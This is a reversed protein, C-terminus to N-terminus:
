CQNHHDKLLFHRDKEEDLTAHNKRNLSFQCIIPQSLCPEGDSKTHKNKISIVRDEGEDLIPSNTTNGLIHDEKDTIDEIECECRLLASVGFDGLTQFVGASGM